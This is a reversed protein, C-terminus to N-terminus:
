RSRELQALRVAGFVLGIGGAVSIARWIGHAPLAFLVAGSVVVLGFWEVRSRDWTSRGRRRDRAVLVAVVLVLLLCASVATGIATM